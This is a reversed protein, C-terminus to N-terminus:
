SEAVVQLRGAEQRPLDLTSVDFAGARMLARAQEFPVAPSFLFGQGLECGALQLRRCATQDEIGEAVITADFANAMAVISEVLALTREDTAVSSVFSRDIKV